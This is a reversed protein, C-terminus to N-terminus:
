AAGAIPLHEGPLKQVVRSIRICAQHRRGLGVCRGDLRVICPCGARVMTLEMGQTFGLDALRKCHLYGCDISEIRVTEGSELSALTLGGLGAGLGRKGCGQKRVMGLGMM